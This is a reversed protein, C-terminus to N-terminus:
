YSASPTGRLFEALRGRQLAHHRFHMDVLLYWEMASLYGFGPHMTRHHEPISAIVPELENMRRLVAQMGEVIEEKSAPQPPTYEPSAPVKVRIPPISGAAFVVSGQQTKELQDSSAADATMDRCVEVQRLQMFLASRILHMYVQGLSWEEESPKRTIEEMNYLDLEQVVQKVSEELSLLSQHPTMNTM